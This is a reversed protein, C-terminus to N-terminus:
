KVFGSLKDILKSLPLAGIQRSVEEGERVVVLTPLNRVSYKNTLNVNEDANIKLIDIRDGMEGDLLKLTSDLTKCPSCWSAWFDLLIIKGQSNDFENQLSNIDDNEINKIM